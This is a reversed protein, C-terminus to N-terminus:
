SPTPPPPSQTKKVLKRAMKRNRNSTEGRLKRAVGVEKVQEKKELEQPALLLNRHRRSSAACDCQSLDTVSCANAANDSCVGDLVSTLDEHKPWGPMGTSYVGGMYHIGGIASTHTSKVTDFAAFMGEETRDGTNCATQASTGGKVHPAFSLRCDSNPNTYALVYFATTHTSSPLKNTEWYDYPRQSRNTMTSGVNWAVQVDVSDAVDIMHELASKTSGGWTLERRVYNSSSCECCDWNWSVSFHLPLPLAAVRTAELDDLFTLQAADNAGGCAKVSTFYENNVAAGDFYSEATGCQSNFDNLGGVMGQESFAADSAAFLGYVEVGHSHAEALTTILDADCESNANLGGYRTRERVDALFIRTVERGSITSSAWLHTRAAPTEWSHQFCNANDGTHNPPYIGNCHAAEADFADTWVYMAHNQSAATDLMMLLLVAASSSLAATVPSFKKNTM